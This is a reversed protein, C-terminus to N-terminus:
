FGGRSIRLMKEGAREMSLDEGESEGEECDDDSVNQRFPHRTPTEMLRKSSCEQRMGSLTLHQCM